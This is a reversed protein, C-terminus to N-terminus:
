DLRQALLILTLISAAQAVSDGLVQTWNVNQGDRNRRADRTDTWITIESGPLVEPYKPGLLFRKKVQKVEGNPHRVIVKDRRADDAFGGGFNDIYYLATKGPLYPSVIQTLENNNVLFNTAGRIKVYNIKKPIFLTDGDLMTTNYVSRPNDLVEDLRIIMYGLSDKSRFMTAAAPFAENTLGGARQVIDHISENDKILSYGGPNVVEGSVYINQQLEFNPVYRVFVNDFPELAFDSKEVLQLENRDVSTTEIITQTPQNDRIIVRAVEIRNTASSRKFGNALLIADKISMGEGFVFQGPSNVAGEVTIYVDDQFEKNSYIHVSDYPELFVNDAANPDQTIEHLDVRIYQKDNPNLPDLRHVHAYAADTRLGGAIDILDRIRMTGGQDYDVQEPIRVAGAIKIYKNDLFREKAYVELVDQDQMMILASQGQGNIADELSVPLINVSGSSTTRRIYAQDLKTSPMIGAYAILDQLTLGEILEYDGPSRVEGSVTVFNELVERIETVLVKDGNQLPYDTRSKLREAYLVDKIVKKDDEYRQIKMSRLLANGSLGGAYEILDFLGEGPTLEYTHPRSVPGEISALTNAAPVLIYDGDNLGFDKRYDPNTQLEYFDFNVVEGTRKVLKINRVSGNDKMGGAAAILNIIGNSASVTMDGPSVVEGTVEVRINRVAAISVSFQNPSFRYEERYARELKMRATRKDLGGVSVKVNGDRIRVTGDGLIVMSEEIKVSSFISVNLEDGPGLIYSDPPDFSQGEQILSLQGSRFFSHGYIVEELTDLLTETTDSEILLSDLSESLLDETDSTDPIITSRNSLFRQRSYALLLSEVELIEERTLSDLDEIDYGEEELLAYFEEQDIDRLELEYDLQDKYSSIIQASLSGAGVLLIAISFVLVRLVPRLSCSEDTLHFM